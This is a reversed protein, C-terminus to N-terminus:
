ILTAMQEGMRVTRNVALDAKFRLHDEPFLAIVTSGLQFAGMEAGRALTVEGAAYDWKKVKGLRPPNIQGAWTTTISGVIMAGVLILAMLGRETEFLCIVRENRAFLNPVANATQPNVSFLSGPVYIMQKLEGDLPMHIRHYDKPALYVTMFSGQAFAAVLGSEQALLDSLTYDHGKAQLLREGDIAGFESITGDVPMALAKEGQCLPRAVAKLQRTFFDNFCTYERLQERQALRMDVKYHAVYRKLVIHRLWACRTTQALKGFLASLAIKPLLYQWWVKYQNVM